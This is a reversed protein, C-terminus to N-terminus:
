LTEQEEMRVHVGDRGTRGPQGYVWGQSAACLDEGVMMEARFVQVPTGVEVGAGKGAVPEESLDLEPDSM